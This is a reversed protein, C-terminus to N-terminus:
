ADVHAAEEVTLGCPDGAERSLFLVHHYSRLAAVSASDFPNGTFQRREYNLDFRGNLLFGFPLGLGPPPVAPPPPPPSPPAALLVNVASAPAAPAGPVGPTAAAAQPPAALGAIWAVIAARRPDGAPLPAGGAHMQGSAKTLLLSSEPARPDILARVIAEDKAVDGSLLFRTM